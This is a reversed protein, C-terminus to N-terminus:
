EIGRRKRSQSAGDYDDDNDNDGDDDDDDEEKFKVLNYIGLTHKIYLIYIYIFKKRYQNPGSENNSYNSIFKFLILAIQAYWVFLVFFFGYSFLLHVCFLVFLQFIFAACFLHVFHTFFFFVSFYQFLLLRTLLCVVSWSSCLM